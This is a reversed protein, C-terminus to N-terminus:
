AKMIELSGSIFLLSANLILLYIVASLSPHWLYILGLQLVTAAVLYVAFRFRHIALNYLLFQNVLAYFTMAICFLPVLRISEIAEKHTLIKLVLGPFLGCFISAGMCLFATIALGKKLLPLSAKQQSFAESMKPFLVVGFVAPLFLIIKGVMQAVSYFGADEPSFFHKVLIVDGNTLVMWSFLSLFVPISYKYVSVMRLQIAGDKKATVIQSPIQFFSILLAFVVALGFGLLAGMVKLGVMVLLIGFFLKLVAGLIGNLAMAAFRQAGQLIGITLPSIISLFLVCGTIVVLSVVPIKLFGSIAPALGVFLALFLLSFIIVRKGVHIMFFKVKSFENTGYFQAVFKAIVTQITGGPLSLIMFMSFLANLIGYDVANLRRVMFLWFFLNCVNVFGSALFLIGSAQLLDKFATIRLGNLRLM